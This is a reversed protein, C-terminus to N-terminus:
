QSLSKIVDAFNVINLPIPNKEDGGVINPLLKNVLSKALEGKERVTIDPSRLAAVYAKLSEEKADALCYTRADEMKKPLRGSNKNGAM